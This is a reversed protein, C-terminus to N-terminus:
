KSQKQQLQTQGIFIKSNVLIVQGDLPQLGMSAVVFKSIHFVNIHVIAVGKREISVNHIGKINTAITFSMCQHPPHRSIMRESRQSCWCSFIQINTYNTAIRIKRITRHPQNLHKSLIRHFFTPAVNSKKGWVDRATFM